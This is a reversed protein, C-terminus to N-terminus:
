GCLGYRVLSLHITELQKLARLGFDIGITLFVELKQLMAVLLLTM